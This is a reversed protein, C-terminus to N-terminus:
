YSMLIYKPIYAIVRRESSEEGIFVVAEEGRRLQTWNGTSHRESKNLM